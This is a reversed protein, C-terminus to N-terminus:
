QGEMKFIIETTVMTAVKKGMLEGPSYKWSSIANIVSEDFIDPVSASLIAVGSVCGEKDVLFKVKVVGELGMRKARYPYRPPTKFTPMPITDVQNQDMVANFDPQTQTPMVPGTPASVVPIGGTLRQDMNLEMAPMDLTLQRKVPRKSMQRSIKHIKEPEKEPEKEPPPEKKMPQLPSPKIRIFNVVNLSEIDNKQTEMIIMGPLSCFLLINIILAGLFGPILYSKTLPSLPPSLPSKM